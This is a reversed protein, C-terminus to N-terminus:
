RLVLSELEVSSTHDDPRQIVSHHPHQTLRSISLNDAACAANAPVGFGLVVQRTREARLRPDMAAVARESGIGVGAIARASPGRHHRARM